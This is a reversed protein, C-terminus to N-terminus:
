PVVVEGVLPLPTPELVEVQARHRFGYHHIGFFCRLPRM